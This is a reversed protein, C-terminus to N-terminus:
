QAAGVGAAQPEAVTEGADDIPADPKEPFQEPGTWGPPMLSDYHETLRHQPIEGVSWAGEVVRICLLLPHVDVTGAGRKLMELVLLILQEFEKGEITRDSM